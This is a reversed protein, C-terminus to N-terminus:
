LWAVMIERDEDRLEGLGFFHKLRIKAGCFRPIKIGVKTRSAPWKPLDWLCIFDILLSPSILM